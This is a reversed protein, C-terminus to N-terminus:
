AKLENIEFFESFEPADPNKCPKHSQFSEEKQQIEIKLSICYKELQLFGNSLENYVEKEVMDKTKFFKADLLPSKVQYQKTDQDVRGETNFGPQEAHQQGDALVNYEVTMQVEAMPEKYNVPKIDADETHTDNRSRSNSDHKESGTGSKRRDYQRQHRAREAISKKVSSM